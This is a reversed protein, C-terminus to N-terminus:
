TEFWAIAKNDEFRLSCCYDHHKDYFTDMQGHILEPTDEFLMCDYHTGVYRQFDKHVGWEKKLQEDTLEVVAYRRYWDGKKWNENECIMEFWYYKCEFLLMGSLAGDYYDSIWAYSYESETLRKLEPSPHSNKLTKLTM